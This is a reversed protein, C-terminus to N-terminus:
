ILGRGDECTGGGARRGLWSCFMAAGPAVCGMMMIKSGPKLVLDAVVDADGAPKGSRVQVQFALPHRM